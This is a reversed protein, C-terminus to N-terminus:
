FSFGLRAAFWPSEERSEKPIFLGFSLTLADVPALWIGGGYSYHWNDSSDNDLWVRGYDFSGFIGTTLPLVRNYSSLIKVRLDTSHWVATKGYFRQSRYGRLGQQGGITPMQFFEYGTGINQAGGIQTALIINERTDLSKYLALQAQWTAFHKETERLNTTWDLTTKFRVGRHPAFVNDVNNVQIGLEAGGYFHHEFFGPQNEGYETIYRGPTDEIETSQLTPGITIFSNNGGFRKKFAPYIRTSSQRVRYFNVRDPLRVSNNGMGSFNFSYTPGHYRADLYFDGKGFANIFDGLYNIRFANTAFAYSGGITQSSAYPEKKFGYNIFNFNAGVLLGDDPNYGLIPAPLTIDYESDYGRRDYINYRYLSSRKDKTEKGAIVENKGLDDYVVTHKGGKKVISQDKFTDKGLGGILRVTLSKRVSGSVEFEDDDGNGYINVTKTIDNEFTREFNKQKIEGKKNIEYVTVKTFQDDLREVVFREREDTGIVDVSQGLFEYHTRAIQMLTNRRAKIGKILEPASIEQAKKPWGKFANEIDQDTLHEQIFKVQAQWQEWNLENLFTRDFLRASWTNWKPDDIEPGFTQLQRLFPLTYNAIDVVFGDYKSFAQDRDRPIPRYLKTGDKQDIRAWAWQDDHRDWDGVMLDLMRTRLAWEEDVQHKNNKLINEVLEPTSIIEDANGFFAANKWKKGAPREEVLCMTQGFLTNYNGLAPQSPVYYIKPNTHYVNIAEAIVPVALPAFPHTSLFNDEVLFQAAVMKNFPFPLFRSVDKNMGRLVYDHGISDRVRLSNTQNGGGLKTPVVGGKFTSLDLVPFPYLPQYLDRHHTGLLFKHVKGVPKVKNKSITKETSDKHLNYESFDVTANEDKVPPPNKIKKQFILKADKGDKSVKYFQTWVEGGEFFQLTSFGSTGSVFEAGKGIKVPSNKSGSGSVIFKQGDNEIYELAHEHGSAFIFSGNKRAAALMASKMERYNSNAVDQKSGIMSRYMVGLTGIVPLPFYIEKELQALPFIHDAITSSGGHPGYTYPPHHSAIILHKNKYKRVMNEFIFRFSAHNRAECGENMKPEKDWDALYWQTDVVIVVVDHDLEVAEPGSCGDNPLFYNEWDDKDEKGNRKNLYSEIYKEQDKIGKLGWGRWDHNGPVFIPRGKFDNLIELQANISQEGKARAETDEKPPMGYEYINDGLYLISSNKSEQSLKTQLYQLIATGGESTPKGADGILYMTHNLKLSPSPSEQQWTKSSKAYQSKYSACSSILIIILLSLATSTRKM